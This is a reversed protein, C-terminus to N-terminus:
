VTRGQARVIEFAAAIASALEKHTIVHRAALESAARETLPSLGALVPEAGWGEIAAVVHELAAAGFAEDLIAQTLDIIVVSVDQAAPDRGILELARL